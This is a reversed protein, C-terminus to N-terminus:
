SRPRTEVHNSSINRLPVLSFYPGGPSLSCVKAVYIQMFRKKAATTDFNEVGYKKAVGGLFNAEGAGGM